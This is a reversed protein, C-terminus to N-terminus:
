QIPVYSYLTTMLVLIPKLLDKDNSNLALLAKDLGFQFLRPVINPEVEILNALAYLSQYILANHSRQLIAILEALLPISEGDDTFECM